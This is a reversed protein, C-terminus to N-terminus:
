RRAPEACAKKHYEKLKKLVLAHISGPPYKGAANKRGAPVGTLLAIGEEIHSVTYIHFMGQRVAEVVEEKLVLDKRNSEPIM